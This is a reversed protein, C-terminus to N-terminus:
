THRSRRRSQPESLRAAVVEAIRDITEPSLQEGRARLAVRRRLAELQETSEETRQLIEHLTRASRDEAETVMRTLVTIAHELRELAAGLASNFPLRAGEVASGVSEIRASILALTARIADFEVEAPVSTRHELLRPVSSDTGHPGPRTTSSAGNREVRRERDIAVEPEAAPWSLRVDLEDGSTGKPEM